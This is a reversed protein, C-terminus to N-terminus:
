LVFMLGVLQSTGFGKDRVWQVRTLLPVNVPVSSMPIWTRVLTGIELFSHGRTEMGIGGNSLDVIKGQFPVEQHPAGPTSVKGIYTVPSAYSHRPAKRKEETSQAM